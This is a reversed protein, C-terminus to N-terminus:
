PWGPPLGFIKSISDGDTMKFINDELVSQPLSNFVSKYPKKAWPNHYLRIDSGNINWCDLRKTLLVASNRTYRPGSKRTWAGNPLRTCEQKGPVSDTFEVIVQEEGYLADIIDQFDVYCEMTNLAIVYPLELDSYRKAKYVVADRIAQRSNGLKVPEMTVGIPRYNDNTNNSSKSKPILFFSVIWGNGRWNLAQTSSHEESEVIEHYDSEKLINELYNVVERIPPPNKPWEKLQIGILFDQSKIRKNITDFLKWTRARAATMEKSEGMVVIAELYFQFGNPDTVLFDPKRTTHPLSPHIDVHCDFILLLEHLFLEFFASLHNYDNQSRFRGLLDKANETPYMSFWKELVDRIREAEVRASRNLYRFKPEAYLKAGNDNRDINDFLRM